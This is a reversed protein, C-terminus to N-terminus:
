VEAPISLSRRVCDLIDSPTFPKPLFLAGSERVETRLRDPEVFGSSFIVRLDPRRRRLTRALTFGDDHPLM